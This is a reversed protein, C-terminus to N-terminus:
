EHTSRAKWDYKPVIKTFLGSRETYDRNALELFLQTHSAIADQKRRLEPGANDIELSSADGLRILRSLNPENQSEYKTMFAISKLQQSICSARDIKKFQINNTFYKMTLAYVPSTDPHKYKIISILKANRERRMPNSFPLTFKGFCFMIFGLVALSASFEELKPNYMEFITHVRDYEIHLILNLLSKIWKVTSSEMRAVIKLIDTPHLQRGQGSVNETKEDFDFLKRLEAFITAAELEERNVIPKFLLNDIWIIIEENDPTSIEYMGSWNIFLDHNQFYMKPPLGLMLRSWPVINHPAILPLTVNETLNLFNCLDTLRVFIGNIEHVAVWASFLREKYPESVYSLM